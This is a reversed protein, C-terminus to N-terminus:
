GQSQGPEVTGSLPAIGPRHVHHATAVFVAPSRREIKFERRMPVLARGIPTVVPSLVIERVHQEISAANCDIPRLGDSPVAVRRVLMMGPGHIQQAAAVLLPPAALPIERCGEVPILARRLAAIMAALPIM